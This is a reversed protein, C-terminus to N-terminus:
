KAQQLIEERSRRKNAKIYNLLDSKLVYVKRGRKFTNFERNSIKSYMTTLSIGLLKAGEHIDIPVEEQPDRPSSHAKDVAEEVTTRITESLFEQLESRKVILFVDDPKKEIPLM